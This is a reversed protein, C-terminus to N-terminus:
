FCCGSVEAQPMAWEGAVIRRAFDKDEKFPYQGFLITFLIVGCSRCGPAARCPVFLVACSRCGPVYPLACLRGSLLRDAM